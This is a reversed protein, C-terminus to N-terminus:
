RLEEIRDICTVIDAPSDALMTADALEERSGYGYLCGVSPLNHARALELDKYRDGVAIFPGKVEERITLFIVEKPASDFQEATYYHDFWEDFGFAARVADLYANRCNSLFVLTHGKQKLQTLADSVGPFLRATGNSILEDMLQGVHAAGERAISWPIDPFLQGWAEKATLGINTAMQAESISRAPAKGQEVLWEYGRVFAIRYIYMSDHLTGDFDFIITSPNM